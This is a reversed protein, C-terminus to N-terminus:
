EHSIKSTIKITEYNLPMHWTYDMMWCKGNKQM